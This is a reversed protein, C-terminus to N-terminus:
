GGGGQLVKVTALGQLAPWGFLVAVDQAAVRLEFSVTATKSANKRLERAFADALCCRFKYQSLTRDLAGSPEKLRALDFPTKPTTFLMDRRHGLTFATAAIFSALGDPERAVGCFSQSIRFVGEMGERFVAYNQRFWVENLVLVPTCVSCAGLDLLGNCL